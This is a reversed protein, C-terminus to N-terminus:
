LCRNAPASAEAMTSLVRESLDFPERKTTVCMCPGYSPGHIVYRAMWKLSSTEDQPNAVPSSRAAQIVGVGVAPEELLPSNSSAQAM